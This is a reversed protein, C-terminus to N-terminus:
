LIWSGGVCAEAYSAHSQVCMGSCMGLVSAVHLFHMGQKILFAKLHAASQVDLVVVNKIEWKRYFVFFKRSFWIYKNNWENLPSFKIINVNEGCLVVSKSLNSLFMFSPVITKRVDKHIMKVQFNKAERQKQYM